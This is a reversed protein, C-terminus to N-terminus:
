LSKKAKVFTLNCFLSSFEIFFKLLYSKPIHQIDSINKSDTLHQQNRISLGGNFKYRMRYANNIKFVAGERDGFDVLFKSDWFESPAWYFGLGQLYQGRNKTEGYSPMIWGSHRRGGQDPFVGFPLGFLPVGGLYLVIPKVFIKDQSIMKM